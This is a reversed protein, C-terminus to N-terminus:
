SKRGEDVEMYELMTVLDGRHSPASQAKLRELVPTAKDRWGFKKVFANWSVLDYTDM